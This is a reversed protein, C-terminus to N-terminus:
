MRVTTGSFDLTRITRRGNAPAGEMDTRLATAICLGDTGGDTWGGEGAQVVVGVRGSRIAREGHEGALAALWLHVGCGGDEEVEGVGGRRGM